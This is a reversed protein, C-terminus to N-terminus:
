SIMFKVVEATFRVLEETSPDIEDLKCKERIMLADEKSLPNKKIAEHARVAIKVLYRKRYKSEPIIQNLFFIIQEITVFSKIKGRTMIESTYEPDLNELSIVECILDLLNMMEEKSICLEKKGSKKKEERSDSKKDSFFDSKSIEESSGSQSEIIKKEALPNIENQLEPQQKKSSCNKESSNSKQYFYNNDPTEETYSLSSDAIDFPIEKEFSPLKEPSNSVKRKSASNKNSYSPEQCPLSYPKGNPMPMKPEHFRKSDALSANKECPKPPIFSQSGCLLKPFKENSKPLKPFNKETKPMIGARPYYNPSIKPKKLDSKRKQDPPIKNKKESSLISSKIEPQNEISDTGDIKPLVFKPSKVNIMDQNPWFAEPLDAEFCKIENEQDYLPFDLKIEENLETPSNEIIKLGSVNSFIPNKREQVKVSYCLKINKIFSKPGNLGVIRKWLKNEYMNWYDMSLVLLIDKNVIVPWDQSIEESFIGVSSISVRDESIEFCDQKRDNESLYRGFLLIKNQYACCVFKTMTNPLEVNLKELLVKEVNVRFINKDHGEAGFIYIFCEDLVSQYKKLDKLRIKCIPNKAEEEENKIVNRNVQNRSTHEEIRDEFVEWYNQSLSYRMLDASEEENPCYNVSSVNGGIYYVWDHYEHLTGGSVGFPLPSVTSIERKIPSILHASRSKNLSDDTGGVVFILTNQLIQAMSSDKHFAVLKHIPFLESNSNTVQVLNKSKRDVYYFTDFVKSKKKNGCIGM